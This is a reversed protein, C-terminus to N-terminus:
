LTSLEFNLIKDQLIQLLSGMAKGSNKASGMKEALKLALYYDWLMISILDAKESDERQSNRVLVM